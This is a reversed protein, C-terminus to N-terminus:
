GIRRKVEERIEELVEDLNELVAENQFRIVRMGLEELNNTRDADYFRQGNEEHYKGDLEIALRAQHCYFDLVYENVPHQRRFKLGELQKERLAEWLVQEAETMQNRLAEANSFIEPTAGHHM